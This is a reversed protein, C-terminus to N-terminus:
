CVALSGGYFEKKWYRSGSCQRLTAAWYLGPYVRQEGKWHYQIISLHWIKPAARCFKVQGMHKSRLTSWNEKGVICPLSSARPLSGCAPRRLYVRSVSPQVKQAVATDCNTVYFQLTSHQLCPPGAQAQRPGCRRTRGAHCDAVTERGDQSCGRGEETM